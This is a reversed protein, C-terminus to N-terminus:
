DSLFANGTAVWLSVKDAINFFDRHPSSVGFIEDFFTRSDWLDVHGLARTVGDPNLGFKIDFLIIGKAQAFPDRSVPKGKSEITPPGFAAALFSRMEQVAFAYHKHDRGRATRLGSFNAPIPIGSYNLDRSMRITCTDGDPGGLWQQDPPASTDDIGGGILKKVNAASPDKPYNAVLTDFSPVARYHAHASQPKQEPAAM